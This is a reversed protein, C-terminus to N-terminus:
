WCTKSPGWWPKSLITHTFIHPKVQGMVAPQNNLYPFPTHQLIWDTASVVWDKPSHGKRHEWFNILTSVPGRTREGLLFVIQEMRFFLRPTAHQGFCVAESIITSVHDGPVALVRWLASSAWGFGGTPEQASLPRLQTGGFEGTSSRARLPDPQLQM